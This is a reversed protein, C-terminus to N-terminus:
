ASKEPPRKWFFLFNTAGIWLAILAINAVINVWSGFAGASQNLAAFGAASLREGSQAITALDRGLGALLGSLNVLMGLLLAYGLTYLLFAAIKMALGARHLFYFIGVVMALHLSIIHGVIITQDASYVGFLYLIEYESM